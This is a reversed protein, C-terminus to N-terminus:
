NVLRSVASGVCRFADFEHMPMGGEVWAPTTWRVAEIANGYVLELLTTVAVQAENLRTSVRKAGEKGAIPEDSEFPNLRYPTISMEFTHERSSALAGEEAFSLMARVGAWDAPASTTTNIAWRVLVYAPSERTAQSFSYKPDSVKLHQSDCGWLKSALECLPDLAQLAEKHCQEVIQRDPTDDWSYTVEIYSDNEALFVELCPLPLTQRFGMARYCLSQRAFDLWKKARKVIATIKKQWSKALMWVGPM